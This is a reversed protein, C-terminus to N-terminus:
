LRALASFDFGEAAVAGDTLEVQTTIKGDRVECFVGYINRYDSVKNTPGSRIQLVGVWDGDAIVALREFTSAAADPFLVRGAAANARFAARGHQTQMGLRYVPSEALFSEFQEPEFSGFANLYELVLTKNAESVSTM